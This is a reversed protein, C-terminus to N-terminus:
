FWKRKMFWQGVGKPRCTEYPRPLMSYLRSIPNKFQPCKSAIKTSGLMHNSIIDNKTKNKIYLM